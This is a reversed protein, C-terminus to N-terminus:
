PKFKGALIHWTLKKRPNIVDTEFPSQLKHKLEELLKKGDPFDFISIILHGEPKLLRHCQDFFIGTDIYYLVENAVLADFTHDPRFEEFRVAHFNERMEPMKGRGLRIAEESIDLGTYSLLDKEILEALIGTGCGVDLVHGKQIVRTLYEAIVGYRGFESRSDLLHSYTEEYRQRWFRKLAENDNYIAYLQEQEAKIIKKPDQFNKIM